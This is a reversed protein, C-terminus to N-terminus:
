RVWKDLEQAVAEPGADTPLIAIPKGDPGFLYTISTHDVLYGGAENPEGISYYAAYDKTLKDLQEKSGTMGILRPHFADTFETLVEPTDRAPDVSVFLPQIKAAREPDSAEFRKLGAMARQVDVPCVDPCFTYGFYITRYQGDFDGWSVPKGDEGTLTFDGGIDAGELPPPGAPQTSQSCASLALAFAAFISLPLVRASM